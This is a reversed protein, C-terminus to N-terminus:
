QCKPLLERSVSVLQLESLRVKLSHRDTSTTPRAPDTFNKVRERLSQRSSVYIFGSVHFLCMTSINFLENALHLAYLFTM